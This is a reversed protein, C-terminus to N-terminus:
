DKPRRVFSNLFAGSKLGFRLGVELGGARGWALRGRADMGFRCAALDLALFAEAAAADGRRRWYEAAERKGREFEGPDILAM